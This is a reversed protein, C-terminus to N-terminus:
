PTVDSRAEVQEGALGGAAAAESRNTGTGWFQGPQPRASRITLGLPCKATRGTGMGGGCAELAMAEAWEEAKEEEGAGTSSADEPTGM